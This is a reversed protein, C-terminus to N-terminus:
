SIGESVLTTEFLLAVFLKHCRKGVLRAKGYPSILSEVIRCGCNEPDGPRWKVEREPTWSRLVAEAVMYMTLMLFWDGAKSVRPETPVM